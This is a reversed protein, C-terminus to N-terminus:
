GYGWVCEGLYICILVCVSVGVRGVRDLSCAFVDIVHSKAWWERGGGRGGVWM